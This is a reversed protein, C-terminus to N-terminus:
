HVRLASETILIELQEFDRILHQKLAAIFQPSGHRRFDLVALVIIRDRYVESGAQRMGRLPFERRQSTVGAFRDLLRQEVEIFHERPISRGDNYCPPLYFDYRRAAKAM